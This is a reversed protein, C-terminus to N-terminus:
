SLLSTGARGLSLLGSVGLLLDSSLGVSLRSQDWGVLSGLVVRGLIDARGTEGALGWSLSDESSGDGRSSDQDEESTSVGALSNDAELLEVRTEEEDSTRELSHPQSRKAHNNAHDTKSVGPLSLLDKLPANLPPDSCSFSPLYM